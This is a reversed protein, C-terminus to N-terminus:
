KTIFQENVATPQSKKSFDKIRVLAENLKEETACLSIRIFRRGMEGFIFGPTIFVKTGYLIEDIWKEVDAVHDPAKAWVFLGSQKSSYACSLEDLIRCAAHQRKRYTSNQKQFWDEGSKLAEIAAHQLGLFMGSDMNSKVRLVADIYDKRGAVWGIRWGAMNHSKSLSNLELAVDTAGNISLISLPRDNLILSYPNDNVILFNNERALDVLEQLEEKLAIRGTPMHPFNVWMIKVNSLDRKRLAAVDIGWNLKESMQYTVIKAGTMKAVSAYTPYGPDPILVEDGENVFAMCIHMIGEKSGVLPLIDTEAHISVSYTKKYFHSIAERLQPIGKYNQYGHNAPNKASTTLADIANESPALDPSGIGLNIVRLEPSDLSRVEALKKSFYYEEVGKIRNAPEIM